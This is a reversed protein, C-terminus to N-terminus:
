VRSIQVRGPVSQIKSPGSITTTGNGTTVTTKNKNKFCFWWILIVIIIIIIAVVVRNNRLYDMFSNSKPKQAIVQGNAIVQTNPDENYTQSM